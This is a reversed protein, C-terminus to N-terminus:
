KRNRRQIRKKILWAIIIMCVIVDGFIIIFSAGFVSILLISFLLLFLLIACLLIFTIM